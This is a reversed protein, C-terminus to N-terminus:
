PNVELSKYDLPSVAVRSTDSFANVWRGLKKVKQPDIQFLATAGNGNKDRKFRVPTASYLTTHRPDRKQPYFQGNSTVITVLLDTDALSEKGSFFLSVEDARKKWMGRYKTIVKLGVYMNTEEVSLIQPPSTWEEDENTTVSELRIRASGDGIPIRLGGSERYASRSIDKSGSATHGNWSARVIEVSDPWTWSVVVEPGRRQIEADDIPPCVGLSESYGIIGTDGDVTVAFYHNLGQPPTARVGDSRGRSYPAGILRQCHARIDTLPVRSGYPWPLERPIFYIQIEHSDIKQWQIRIEERGANDASISPRMKRLPAAEGRPVGAVHAPESRIITGTGSKYLATLTFNYTANRQLGTIEVGEFPNATEKRDEGEGRCIIEVAHTQPHAKWTLSLSSEESSIRVDKIKPIILSKVVAAPSYPGGNSMAVAYFVESGVVPNKDEISTMSSTGSLVEGDAGSVPVTGTKRVVRAIADSNTNIGASWSITVTARVPDFDATINRPMAPPLQARYALLDSDAQDIVLGERIATAAAEIDDNEFATRFKERINELAVTKDTILQKMRLQETSPKGPASSALTEFKRRAESLRGDALLVAVQSWSEHKGHATGGHVEMAIRGADLEDVGRQVLYDRIEVASFSSQDRAFGVLGQLILRHLEKDTAAKDLILACTNEWRPYKQGTKAARESAQILDRRTIPSHDIVKFPTYESPEADLYALHVISLANAENLAGIVGKELSDLPPEWGPVISVQRAKLAAVFDDRQDSLGASELIETVSNDRVALLGDSQAVVKEALGALHGEAAVAAAQNIMDLFTPDSLDKVDALNKLTLLLDKVKPAPPRMQNNVFKMLEQLQEEAEEKPLPRTFGLLEPLHFSPHGLVAEVLRTGKLQPSNKLIGTQLAETAATLSTGYRGNPAYHKLTRSIEKSTSAM